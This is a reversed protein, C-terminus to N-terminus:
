LNFEMEDRMLGMALDVTWVLGLIFLYICEDVNLM